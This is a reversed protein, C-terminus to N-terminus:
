PLKEVRVYGGSGEQGYILSYSARGTDPMFGFAAGNEANGDPRQVSLVYEVPHWYAQRDEPAAPVLAWTGESTPAGLEEPYIRLEGDPLFAMCGEIGGGGYFRWLGLLQTRQQQESTMDVPQVHQTELSSLPVFGRAPKGDVQTEVYAYFPKLTSLWTVETGAPLMTHSFQSVLPDDTFPAAQALTAKHEAFAIPRAGGMPATMGDPVPVWGVRSTRTSVRYQCLMWGDAEGYYDAGAQLSVAAKGSAARFADTTPAMYVPLTGTHKHHLASSYPFAPVAANLADALQTAEELTKPFRQLSFQSLLIPTRWQASGADTKFMYGGDTQTISAREPATLQAAESYWTPTWGVEWSLGFAYRGQEEGQTNLISLIFRDDGDLTIDARVGDGPQPLAPTCQAEVAWYKGDRRAIFLENHYRAKMEFVALDGPRNKRTHQDRAGSTYDRYDPDFDFLSVLGGPLGWSNALAPLCCLWLAAAVALCLVRKM